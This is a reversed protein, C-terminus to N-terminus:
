EEEAYDLLIYTYEKSLYRAHRDETTISNRDLLLFPGACGGQIVHGIHMCWHNVTHRLRKDWPDPCEVLELIQWRPWRVDPRSRFLGDTLIIAECPTLHNESQSLDIVTIKGRLRRIIRNLPVSVLLGDDDLLRVDDSVDGTFLGMPAGNRFWIVRQTNM